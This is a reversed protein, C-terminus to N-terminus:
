GKSSEGRVPLRLRATTGQGPASDFSLTAGLTAALRLSLALGTGMGEFRRTTGNEGQFFPAGLQALVERPMGIGSDRVTITIGEPGQEAAVDIAGGAATFKIANALLNELIRRLATADTTLTIHPPIAACTLAVQQEAAEPQAAESLQHLLRTLDLVQAESRREDFRSLEILNDLTRQLRKAGADIHRLGSRQDPRCDALLLDAFGLIANLPTRLEHSLNSLLQTKTREAAQAQRRQEVLRDRVYREYRVLIATIAIALLSLSRNIVSAMMDRNIDPFFFGIVVMVGTLAAIWWVARANRHFAATCVLPIYAVGFALLRDTLLDTLFALGAAAVIGAILWQRRRPPLLVGIPDRNQDPM